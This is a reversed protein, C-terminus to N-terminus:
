SKLEEMKNWLVQVAKTILGIFEEYRLSYIYQVNGNEDLDDSEIEDGNEDTTYKKKVDKCFGAFELDSIGCKIMAEEVDQSIFGIHTRGSTGNKFLYSVPQLLLFLQLYKEDLPTIDKKFNKDSTSIASNSSYIQGFKNSATGLKLSDACKSLPRFAIDDKSLVTGITDTDLYIIGDDNFITNNSVDFNSITCYKGLNVYETHFIISRDQSMDEFSIYNLNDSYGNKSLRGINYKTDSTNDSTYSLIKNASDFDTDYIYYSGKAKISTATINGVISANSAKLKGNIDVSFVNNGINISGGSITSGSISGGSITGTCTIINSFTGGNANIIGTFTGSTATVKGIVNLGNTVDYTIGGNALSMSGKSVINGNSNVVFNDNNSGGIGISGGRFSTSKIIGTMNLNGNNDVYFIDENGKSIKLLGSNDNPNVTFTNIGNTIKLGNADFTLSDNNNYIGLTEGLIFKGVITEALVGMTAKMEQTIPDKYIYKGIAAKVSGWNNDTVYMGSGIIRLQCDQFQNSIDDYQRCWIGSQNILIDQSYPNNIIQTTAYFGDKVWDNVINASDSTKKVQQTTNSYSGAVSSVSDMISKIDTTGNYIKEVTSFEVSIDGLNEFDIEYSLLRLRYIEEDIECRIWNGCEFSDTLPTFEKMNLLNNITSTLSYQPSSAKYLEKTATNYLENARELLEANNLGDSIYNDNQYKDERRYSCFIKWLDDGLYSQLNLASKTNSILKTIYDYMDQIYSAQINRTALESDVFSKRKSYLSYMQNYVTSEFTAKSNLIINLCSDFEKSLLELSDVGYLHLRNKFVSEDMKMNTIDVADNVDSKNMARQIQQQVYTLEDDNFQITLEDTHRTDTEDELSTLVIKGKWTGINGKTYTSYDIDVDYLATNILVKAMAIVANDANTKLLTSPSSVAIPSMNQKTLKGIADDISQGDIDVTPMMSTRIFLDADIIDYYYKMLNQYGIIPSSISFLESDTFYKKIYSIVSNYNLLTKSDVSFAKSTQYNEFETNYAKLKTVLETPMDNYTDDRFHYIYGSGNPNINKVAETINDDGGKICFCNKVSSTDCELNIEQALNNSSIFITTDKGDQGSFKTSSCKPCKDNFDGRYGCDECTNYLDYVSLERTMSDFKFIVGYEESIEGTLEDYINTDDITFTKIDTLKKLSDQVYKISYNPVKDLLRHLLSGRKLVKLKQDNTYNLYKGNYKPDNWNYLNVDLERYFITPFNEDYDDSVIDNETNVEIGYLNTNSLEAECLSTGTVEKVISNEETKSVYIEFREKLEPIYLVKFNTVIDWSLNKEGNVLKDISFSIENAANYNEKYTLEKSDRVMDLTTFAKTQLILTVNDIVHEKNLLIRSM